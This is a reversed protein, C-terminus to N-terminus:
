HEMLRYDLGPLPVTWELQVAKLANPDFGLAKLITPALQTSQVPSKIVRASVGPGSIMLAVNTDEDLFGGHEALKTSTKKAYYVGLEPQVIIDPTRSDAKPDNFRLKLSDGAYIKQIRLENQKARLAAVVDDTRSQDSLWILATTDQTAYALLGKQLGEIIDPIADEDLPLRKVPDIPSQGHKSTIVIMTSNYLGNAKLKEVLKGLCKDTHRFAELLGPGPTGAGDLYGNGALKEGVAVAQFNMGFLTPIGVHKAGTHDLGDMERLIAQLKLDDYGSVNPISKAAEAEAANIEPTYLDDVGDGSPGNMVDGFPPHVDAWATRRGGHKVVEFITNVRLFSHPFVPKCGNAPDLPMKAPDIGGGSEVNNVDVDSDQDYVVETGMKTCNSGPPSLTRDYITDYFIGTSTPSGGTAIALMGPVTDSSPTSANTYVTAHSSLQSMVSDPNERIYRMLDLAHMGDISILLVRKVGSRQEPTKAQMLSPMVTISIAITILLRKSM